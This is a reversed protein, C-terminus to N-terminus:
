QNSLTKFGEYEQRLHAKHDCMCICKFAYFDLRHKKTHKRTVCFAKCNGKKEKKKEVAFRSPRVLTALSIKGVNAM